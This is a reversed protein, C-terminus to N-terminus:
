RVQQNCWDAGAKIAQKGEDIIGCFFHWVHIMHPWIELTVPVDVLGAARAVILSDDLLTEASGVQILLPPLGLYSGFAPSASPQKPDAGNLYGDAMKLLIDKNVLPDVEAKAAMTGGSCTLDAWPSICWGAAPMALGADRIALLLALTLGGGASDGSIIIRQSKFGANLLFKYAALADDVAAPYPDEPGLRYDIALVLGGFARAFEGVMARHTNLSGIVYGGGHLYLIVKTEDAGQPKSWEAEMAGIMVPSREIDPATPTAAGFEEYRKRLEVWTLESNDGAALMQRILNVQEL